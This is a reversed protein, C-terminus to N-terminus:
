WNAVEYCYKHVDLKPGNCLYKCQKKAQNRVHSEIVQFLHQAVDASTSWEGRSFAVRMDITMEAVDMIMELKPPVASLERAKNLWRQLEVVSGVDTDEVAGVEGCV